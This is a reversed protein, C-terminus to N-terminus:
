NWKESMGSSRCIDFVVKHQTTDLRKVKTRGTRNVKIKGKRKVMRRMNRRVLTKQRRKKRKALRRMLRKMVTGPEDSLPSSLDEFMLKFLFPGLM